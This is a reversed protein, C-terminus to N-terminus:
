FASAETIHGSKMRWDRLWEERQGNRVFLAKDVKKLAWKIWVNPKNLAKETSNTSVPLARVKGLMAQLHPVLANAVKISDKSNHKFCAAVFMACSALDQAVPRLNYTNYLASTTIVTEIPHEVHLSHMLLQAGPLTLPLNYKSFNGFVKLALLPCSLEECRRVFLESLAGDFANGSEKWGPFM